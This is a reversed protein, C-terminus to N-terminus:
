LHLTAPQPGDHPCGAPRADGERHAISPSPCPKMTAHLRVSGQPMYTPADLAGTAAMAYGEGYTCFDSFGPRVLVPRAGNM